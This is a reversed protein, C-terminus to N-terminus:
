ANGATARPTIRTNMYESELRFSFGEGVGFEGYLRPGFVRLDPDFEYENANYAVRQNWGVGATLRPNFRYGTYLNFDVMWADKRHIQLLDSSRRTPFSHLDRHDRYIHFLVLTSITS